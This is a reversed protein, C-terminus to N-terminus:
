ALAALLGEPTLPKTLVQEMGAERCARLDEPRTSGTVAVLRATCGADRLARATAPGDMGTLQHDLLVADYSSLSALRLADEGSEVADATAGLLELLGVAVMRNVAGDDVVLVRRGTLDQAEGALPLPVRVTF